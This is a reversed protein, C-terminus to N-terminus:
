MPDLDILQNVSIKDQKDRRTTPRKVYLPCRGQALEKLAIDIPNIMDRTIPITPPAGASIQEARYGIVATKEYKTLYKNSYTLIATNDRNETIINSEGGITDYESYEDDDASYESEVSDGDDGDDDGADIDDVNDIDDIETDINETDFVDSPNSSAM